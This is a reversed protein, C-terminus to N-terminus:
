GGCWVMSLYVDYMVFGFDERVVKGAMGLCVILFQMFVMSVCV